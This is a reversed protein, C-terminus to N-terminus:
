KVYICISLRHVQKSATAMKKERRRTENSEYIELKGTHRINTVSFCAFHRVCFFCECIASLWLLKDPFQTVTFLFAKYWNLLYVNGVLVIYLQFFTCKSFYLKATKPMRNLSHKTYGFEVPMRISFLFLVVFWFIFMRFWNRNSIWSNM